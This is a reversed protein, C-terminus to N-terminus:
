TQGQKNVYNKIDPKTRITHGQPKDIEIYCTNECYKM